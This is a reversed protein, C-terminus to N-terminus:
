EVVFRSVIKRNRSDEVQILYIGTEFSSVDLVTTQQNTNQSVVLRGEIDYVKINQLILGGMSVNLYDSTPNPYIELLQPLETEDISTGFDTTVKFTIVKTDVGGNTTGGDDKVTVTVIVSDNKIENLVLYIEGSTSGDTYSAFAEIFSEDSSTATVSISQIEPDGQNVNYFKIALTDFEQQINLDSIANINPMENVPEVTISFQKSIAQNPIDNGNGGDDKLSVTITVTGFMDTVPQYTLSGTAGGSYNVNPAPVITEDSSSATLTLGQTGDDGDAIGSLNISQMAVDELISVNAIDDMVPKNNIGTVVQVVFTMEKTDMAGNATGGDDQVTVSITSTGGAVPTVTLTGTEENPTYSLDVTAVSEDSSGASVTLNQVEIPDGDTIGSLDIMMAEDALLRQVNQEQDITPQLNLDSAYLTVVSRPPMVIKGDSVPAVEAFYSQDHSVFTRFVAPLNNGELSVTQPSYSKNVMVLTTSNDSANTYAVQNIIGYNSSVADIRVSGPVIFKSFHKKVGSLIGGKRLNEINILDAWGAFNGYGLEYVYNLAYVIASKYELPDDKWNVGMHGEWGIDSYGSTETHWIGEVNTGEIQEKLEVCTLSDVLGTEIADASYTHIGVIGLYDRTEPDDLVAQVKDKVWGGLPPDEPMMIKTTLGEAAFKRGTARILEVFEDAMIRCSGYPENFQPENQMSIAYLEVGTEEKIRKVIEALWEAYEEYMDPMLKNNNAFKELTHGAKNYKMWAPPTLPTLFFNHCNTKENLTRIVDMNSISGSNVYFKTPDAVDPDGNDNEPEFGGGDVFLRVLTINHDNFIDVMDETVHSPERNGIGVMTQYTKTNDLAVTVDTASTDVAYITFTATDQIDIASGPNDAVITVKSSGTVGSALTYGFSAKGDVITGVTYSTIFAPNEITVNLDVNSGGEGDSIGSLSVVEPTENVYTVQDPVGDIAVIPSKEYLVVDGLQVYDIWYEGKVAYFWRTDLNIWMSNIRTSDIFYGESEYFSGEFSFTFEHYQDDEAFEVTQETRGYAADAPVDDYDKLFVEMQTLDNLGNNNASSSKIRIKMYPNEALNLEKGTAPIFNFFIGPYKSKPFDAVIHLEGGTEDITLGTSATIGTITADDFNDEYGTLPVETVNITFQVDTTQNGNNGANGGDDTITLTIDSNGTTTSVDYFLTLTDNSLTGVSLNSVVSSNTGIVNFNLNQLGNDGDGIGTIKIEKTGAINYNAVQGPNNAVPPHNIEDYVTVDFTYDRTDIGGHATGGDDALTVTVTIVSGATAAVSPTFAISGINSAADYSVVPNIVANDSSSASVSVLQKAGANGDNIDTLNIIIEQGKVAIIDQLADMTPAENPKVVVKFTMEKDATTGAASATVTIMAEGVMDDVPSITITGNREAVASSYSVVPNPVLSPNSSSASITVPHSDDTGDFVHRLKLTRPETGSAQVLYEQDKITAVAPTVDGAVGIQIDEFYISPDLSSKIGPWFTLPNILFHLNDITTYDVESNDFYFTYTQYEDDSVIEECNFGEISPNGAYGDIKGGQNGAAVALNFTVDSKIKVSLYPYSSIDIASFQYDFAQWTSTKEGSIKLEGNQEAFTFNGVWGSVSNDDFNEVHGFNAIDVVDINFTIDYSDSGGSGTGGDDSVTVTITTTGIALPTFEIIATDEDSTYNVTLPSAVVSPNSSIANVSIVQTKNPDGDAIGTLKITKANGIETSTYFKNSVADIMPANNIASNLVEIAFTDTYTGPAGSTATVIINASGVQGTVPLYHLTGTQDPSSYTFSLNGDPMITQNDSKASLVITSVNGIGDNIGSLAVDQLGANDFVADQDPIPDINPAAIPTVDAYNAGFRIEDYICDAKIFSIGDFDHASVTTVSFSPVSPVAGGIDTPNIFVDIDTTSANFTFKFVFLYTRDVVIASDSVVEASLMSGYLKWNAGFQSGFQLGNNPWQGGSSRGIYMRHIGTALPKYLISLWMVTGEKGIRNNANLYAVFPGSPTMDLKRSAVDNNNGTPRHAYNGSTKLEGYYIPATDEILTSTDTLTYWGASWGYGSEVGQLYGTPTDFGDYAIQANLLYPIIMFFCILALKNYRFLHTFFIEKM